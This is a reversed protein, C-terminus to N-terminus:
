TPSILVGSFWSRAGSFGSIDATNGAGGIIQVTVFATDNIAMPAYISGSFCSFRNSAPLGCAFPNYTFLRFNQSTTKLLVECHTMNSTIDTTTIAASFIYRGAVSCTFTGNTNFDGLTDFVETLAVNTGLQYTTGAGTVNNDASALYAYFEPRDPLPTTGTIIKQQYSM